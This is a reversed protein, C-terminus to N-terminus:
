LFPKYVLTVKIWSGSLWRECDCLAEMSDTTNHEARGTQLLSALTGCFAIESLNVTPNNTPVESFSSSLTEITWHNEVEPDREMQPWLHLM